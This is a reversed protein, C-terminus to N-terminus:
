SGPHNKMLLHRYVRGEIVRNFVNCNIARIGFVISVAKVNLYPGTLLSQIKKVGSQPEETVQINVTSSFSIDNSKLINLM